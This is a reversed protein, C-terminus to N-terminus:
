INHKWSQNEELGQSLHWTVPKETDKICRIVANRSVKVGDIAHIEKM